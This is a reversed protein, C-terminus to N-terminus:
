KYKKKKTNFIASFLLFMVCCICLVCSSISSGVMYQGYKVFSDPDIGMFKMIATAIMWLFESAVDGILKGLETIFYMLQKMILKSVQKLAGNLKDTVLTDISDKIENVQDELTEKIVNIQDLLSKQVSEIENLLTKQVKDVEDLVSKQVSDVQSM